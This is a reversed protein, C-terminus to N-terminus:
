RGQPRSVKKVKVEKVETVEDDSTEDSEEKPVSILLLLSDGSNNVIFSFQVTKKL